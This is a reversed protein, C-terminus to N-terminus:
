ANKGDTSIFSYILQRVDHTKLFVETFKFSNLTHISTCYKFSHTYVQVTNSVTYIYKYLIQFQTYISTCYKFSTYISTCYKFSHIYVQLYKSSHIYIYKYLIQFQTYISTYCKSSIPTLHKPLFVIKLSDQSETRQIRRSVLALSLCDKKVM